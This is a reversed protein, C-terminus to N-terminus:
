EGSAQGHCGAGTGHGNPYRTSSEKTSHKLVDHCHSQTPTEDTLSITKQRLGSGVILLQSLRGPNPRLPILQHPAVTRGRRQTKPTKATDTRARQSTGLRRCVNLNTMLSLRAIAMPRLGTGFHGKRPNRPNTHISSKLFAPAPTDRRLSATM